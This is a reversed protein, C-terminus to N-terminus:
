SCSRTDNAVSILSFLGLDPEPRENICSSRTRTAKICRGGNEIPPPRRCSGNETLVASACPSGRSTLRRGPAAPPFLILRRSRAGRQQRQRAPEADRDRADGLRDRVCGQGRRHLPRAFAPRAGGGRLPGVGGMGDHVGPGVLRDVPRGRHLRDGDRLARRRHQHGRDRDVLPKGDDLRGAPQHRSRGPRPERHGVHHPRPGTPNIWGHGDIKDQGKPGLFGRAFWARLVDEIVVGRDTSPDTPVFGFLAYIGLIMADSLVVPTGALTTLGLIINAVAVCTCDGFKDNQGLLWCAVKDVMDTYRAPATSTDVGQMVRELAMLRTHMGDRMPARGLKRPQSALSRGLKAEIGAQVHDPTLGLKMVAGTSTSYVHQLATVLAVRVATGQEMSSVAAALITAALGAAITIAHDVQGVAATTETSSAIASDIRLKKAGWALATPVFGIVFTAALGTLWQIAPSYDLTRLVHLM